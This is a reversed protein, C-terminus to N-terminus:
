IHELVGQPAVRAPSTLAEVGAARSRSADALSKLTPIVLGVLQMQVFASAHILTIGSEDRLADAEGDEFHFRVMARYRDREMEAKALLLLHHILVRAQAYVDVMQAGVSRGRASALAARGRQLGQRLNLFRWPLRAGNAVHVLEQNVHISSIFEAARPPVQLPNGMEGTLGADNLNRVEAFLNLIASQLDRQPAVLM